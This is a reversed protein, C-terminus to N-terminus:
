NFEMRKFDSHLQSKKDNTKLLTKLVTDRTKDRSTLKNTVHKLQDM